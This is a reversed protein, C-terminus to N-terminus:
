RDRYVFKLVDGVWNTKCKMKFRSLNATLLLFNESILVQKHIKTTTNHKCKQVCFEHWKNEANTILLTKNTRDRLNNSKSTLNAVFNKYEIIISFTMHKWQSTSTSKHELGNQTMFKFIGLRKKASKHTYIFLWHFTFYFEGRFKGTKDSHCM